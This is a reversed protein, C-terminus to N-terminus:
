RLWPALFGEVQRCTAPGELRAKVRQESVIALTPTAAVRFREFLDPREEAAVRYLKFAAHNRRRQLVQALFGEMRRCRGSSASYFFVLGPQVRAGDTPGAGRL